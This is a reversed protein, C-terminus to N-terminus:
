SVFTVVLASIGFMAACRHYKRCTLPQVKVEGAVERRRSRHIFPYPVVNPLQRTLPDFGALICKAAFLSIYSSHSEVGQGEHAAKNKRDCFDRKNAHGKDVSGGKYM